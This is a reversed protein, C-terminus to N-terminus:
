DGDKRDFYAFGAWVLTINDRIGGNFKRGDWMRCGTESEDQMGGFKHQARINDWGSTLKLPIQRSANLQSKVGTIKPNETTRKSWAVIALNENLKHSDNEHLFFWRPHLFGQVATAEVSTNQWCSLIWYWHPHLNKQAFKELHIM